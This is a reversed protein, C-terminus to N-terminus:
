HFLFWKRDSEWPDVMFSVEEVTGDPFFEVWCAMNFLAGEKFRYMWATRNKLSFRSKHAPKGFLAWVDEKRSQGPKILSFHQRDLVSEHGTVMGNRDFIVWWVEQGSGQFSYVWRQGGNSLLVKASPNGLKDSVESADMGSKLLEPHACATLCAATMVLLVVTLMHRIKTFGSM